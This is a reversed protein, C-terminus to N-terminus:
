VWVLVQVKVQLWDTDTIAIGSHRREERADMRRRLSTPHAKRKGPSTLHSRWGM